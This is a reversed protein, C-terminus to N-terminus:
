CRLSLRDSVAIGLRLHYLLLGLHLSLYITPCVAAVLASFANASFGVGSNSAIALDLLFNDLTVISLIASTSPKLFSSSWPLITLCLSNLLCSLKAGPSDVGSVNACISFSFLSRRLNATLIRFVLLSSMAPLHFKLLVESVKVKSENVVSWWRNHALLTISATRSLATGSM